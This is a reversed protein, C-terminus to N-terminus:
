NMDRYMLISLITNQKDFEYDDLRIMEVQETSDFTIHPYQTLHLKPKLISSSQGGNATEVYMFSQGIQDGLAKNVLTVNPL